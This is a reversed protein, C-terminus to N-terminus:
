GDDPIAVKRKSDGEIIIKKEIDPDEDKGKLARSALRVNELEAHRVEAQVKKVDIARHILKFDELLPHKGPLAEIYLSTTPVIVIDKDRRPASLREILIKKYKEKNKEFEQSDKKRICKLFEEFEEITYNGYVDPDHIGVVQNIDIYDQMMYHTIYNNQKLPFIMYNGKYGLLNDLDAIEVLKRKRIDMVVPPLSVQVASRNNINNITRLSLFPNGLAVPSRALNTRGQIDPVDINYLRFFRQDPPEHDWIAQMYYLINDKIHMRLRDTEVQRNFHETVAASYKDTAVQLASTESELQSRLREAEKQARELAEQATSVSLKYAELDPKESGSLGGFINAPDFLTSAFDRDQQNASREASKYKEIAANLAEQAVSLAQNKEHIQQGINDVVVFQREVNMHLLELTIEEGAFSKSLYDLAPLFADDLIVRKLIWQHRILWSENIEQPAPVENAVLIVPTLRYLKESIQYTRQLEYFLYTVPLEDNPNRIEHYNTIETEKEEALDVELRHEQKYEEASKLVDERFQRKTEASERTQDKDASQSVRVNYLMANVSGEATMKFNSKNIARQVIEAEVRSTNTSERKRIQLADDVEKVSRKKKEVVKKTYKQTEQPALPITSVLNGVQYNLPTWEQRYTVLIGFNVSNPAFVDFVYRKESLINHIDELLNYLRSSRIGRQLGSELIAKAKKKNEVSKKAWPGFEGSERSADIAAAVEVVLFYLADQASKDLQSWQKLSLEPLLMQKVRPFRSDNAALTENISRVREIFVELEEVSSIPQDPEDFENIKKVKTWEEYLERGLKALRGDFIETWVNEFAIQLRHFDHYSTADAPGGKLEFAEIVSRIDKENARRPVHYVLSTEPSTVDEMQLGVKEKVLKDALLDEVDPSTHGNDRGVTVTSNANTRDPSTISPDTPDGEDPNAIRNIRREAEIELACTTSASPSSDDTGTGTTLVGPSTLEVLNLLHDLEMEGTVRGDSSKTLGYKEIDEDSLTLQLSHEIKSNRIAESDRNIIAKLSEFLNDGPTFYTPDARLDISVRSLNFSKFAERAREIYKISTAAHTSLNKSLTTTLQDDERFAKRLSSIVSFARGNRLVQNNNESGSSSTPSPRNKELKDEQPTDM